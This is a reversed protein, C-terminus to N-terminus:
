DTCIESVSSQLETWEERFTNQSKESQKMFSESISVHLFQAKGKRKSECEEQMLTPRPLLFFDTGM